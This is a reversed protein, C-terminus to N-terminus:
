APSKSRSSRTVYFEIAIAAVVLAATLALSWPQSRFTAIEFTVSVTAMLILGTAIVSRNAETEKALEWAGTQQSIAFEAM